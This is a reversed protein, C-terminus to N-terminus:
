QVDLIEELYHISKEQEAQIVDRAKAYDRHQSLVDEIACQPINLMNALNDLRSPMNPNTVLCVKKEFINAFAAGHFSSTIVAEAHDVLWLFEDVGVDYLKEDCAITNYGACFVGVLKLGSKKKLAKLQQNLSKDWYLPYVLIFKEEMPYEKEKERWEQANLLFTPDINTQYEADPHYKQLVPINDEERVSIRQFNRLRDAFVAEREPSVRTTGMSCAYTLLKSKDPIYEFYFGARPNNPNFVQDSGALYYDAKLYNLALDQYGNYYIIDVNDRLFQNSKQYQRSVDSFLRYNMYGRLLAIPNATRPIRCKSEPTAVGRDILIYSDYGLKKLTQKLAYAQLMSGYSTWSCFTSVAVLKKDSM